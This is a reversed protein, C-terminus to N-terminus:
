NFKKYYVASDHWRAILSIVKIDWFLTALVEEEDNNSTVFLSQYQSAIVNITRRQLFNAQHLCAKMVVCLLTVAFLRNIFHSIWSLVAAEVSLQWMDLITQMILCEFFFCPLKKCVIRYTYMAFTGYLPVLALNNLCNNIVLAQTTRRQFYAPFIIIPTQIHYLGLSLM